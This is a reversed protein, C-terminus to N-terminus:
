ASSRGSDRRRIQQEVYDAVDSALVRVCRSTFRVPQPFLGAAMFRELTRKSVTLARAAETMTLLPTDLTRMPHVQMIDHTDVRYSSHPNPQIPCTFPPRRPPAERRERRGRVVRGVDCFPRSVSM